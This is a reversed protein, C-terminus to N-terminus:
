SSTPLSSHEPSSLCAGAAPGATILTRYYCSSAAFLAKTTLASHVLLPCLPSYYPSFPPRLVRFFKAKLRLASRLPSLHCAVSACPPESSAPPSTPTLGAPRHLSCYRQSLSVTLQHQPSVQPGPLPTKLFNGGQQPECDPWAAIGASRAPQM